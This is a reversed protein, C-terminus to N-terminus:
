NYHVNQSNNTWVPYSSIADSDPPNTAWSRDTLIWGAGSNTATGSMNWTVARLPVWEGGSPQFMLWMKANLNKSTFILDSIQASTSPSDQASQNSSYPYPYETDLVYNTIARTLTNTGSSSHYFNRVTLSVPNLIQVWEISYNTNGFNYNTGPPMTFTNSFLIGPQGSNTGFCLGYYRANKNTGLEVSSTIAAITASPKVVNFMTQASLTQGMATVTCQVQKSGDDTWYYDAGNTKITTLPIPYGNTHFADPSVYFNSVAYGPITWAFNTIPPPTSGDLGCTLSIKQGVIATVNSDTVDTGNFYIRLKYEQATPPSFSIKDKGPVRPTIVDPDNDPLVVYLNGNTDLNGFNGLAIQNPPIAIGVTDQANTYARATASLVWLNQQTSGLPGGTALKYEADATRRQTGFNLYPYPWSVDCHEGTPAPSIGTANTTVTWTGGLYYWEWWTPGPSEWQPWAVPPWFYLENTLNHIMGSDYTSVGLGGLGNTWDVTWEANMEPEPGAPTHLHDRLHYTQMYVGQPPTVLTQSNIHLRIM